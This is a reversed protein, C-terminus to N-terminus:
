ILDYNKLLFYGFILSLVIAIVLTSVSAIGSLIYSALVLGSNILIVGLLILLTTKISFRNKKVGRLVSLSDSNKIILENGVSSDNKVDKKPVAEAIIEVEDELRVVCEELKFIKKGPFTIGFLKNSYDFNIEKLKNEVDVPISSFFHKRNVFSYSPAVDIEFGDPDFEIRQDGDNIFLNQWFGLFVVKRWGFLSRGPTFVSLIKLPGETKGFFGKRLFNSELKGRLKVIGASISRIKSIPLEMFGRERKLSAFGWYLVFFGFIVLRVAHRIKDPSLNPIDEM